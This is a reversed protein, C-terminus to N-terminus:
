AIRRRAGVIGALALLPLVGPAPVGFHLNDLVVLTGIPDFVLAADFAQSSILGAFQPVDGCCFGFSEYFM